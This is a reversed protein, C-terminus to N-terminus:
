KTAAIRMELELIKNKQRIREDEESKIVQELEAKGHEAQQQKRM